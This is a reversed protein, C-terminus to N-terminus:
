ICKDNIMKASMILDKSFYDECTTMLSIRTYIFMCLHKGGKANYKSELYM